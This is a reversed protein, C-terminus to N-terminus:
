NALKLAFPCEKYPGSAVSMHIIRRQMAFLQLQVAILLFASTMLSITQM